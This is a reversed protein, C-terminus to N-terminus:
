ACDQKKTTLRDVTDAIDLIDFPKSIFANYSGAPPLVEPEPICGSVIIVPIDKTSPDQRMAEVVERGRMGPMLLDVLVIDPKPEQTMRKLGSKGDRVVDVSHGEDSLVVSFVMGISPQDEIVLVIAM